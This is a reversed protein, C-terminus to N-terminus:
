NVKEGIVRQPTTNDEQLIELIALDFRDLDSPITAAADQM